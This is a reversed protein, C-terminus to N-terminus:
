RQIGRFRYHAQCAGESSVMCAGVPEAPTCRSGFLACDSPSAAGRLVHGCICGAPEVTEPLELKFRTFADWRSFVPKLKLGTGKVVGMGRWNSDAPQFVEDLLQRAKENGNPRVGRRYQIEVQAIGREAQEVLMLVSQLVDLPEFGSIVCPVGHGAAYAYPATGTIVSVHGPCILGDLKLEDTDLLAIIIGPTTKHASVVSFNELGLERAKLVAAATAPATTEFGIGFFVVQRKPNERALEIADYSSYVIRVDAGRGREGALSTRSGPVRLMDGYTAVTVEPLGALAIMWDIQDMPTVCVPCGPGSLLRVTPPLLSEIGYRAITVTHGGCFEMFNVKKRSVARIQRALGQALGADWYEDLHKM